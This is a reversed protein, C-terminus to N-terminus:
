RPRFMREADPFRDHRQYLKALNTAITARAPDDSRMDGLAGRYLKEAEGDRGESALQVAENNRASAQLVM